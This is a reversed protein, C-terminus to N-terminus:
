DSNRIKHSVEDTIDRTESVVSDKTLVIKGKAEEEVIRNLRDIFLSIEREMEQRVQPTINRDKYKEIFEVRKAEIIKGIDLVVIEKNNTRSFYWGSVTGSIFSIVATFIILYIIIGKLSGKGM